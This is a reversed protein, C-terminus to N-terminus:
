QLPVDLTQFGWSGDPGISTCPTPPSVSRTGTTKRSAVRGVLCSATAQLTSVSSPSYGILFQASSATAGRGALVHGM